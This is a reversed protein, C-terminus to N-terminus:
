FREELWRDICNLTDTRRDARVLAPTAFSTCIVVDDPVDPFWFPLANWVPENDLKNQVETFLKERPIVGSRIRNEALDGIKYLHFYCLNEGVKYVNINHGKNFCDPMVHEIDNTPGNLKRLSASPVASKCRVLGDDEAGGFYCVGHIHKGKIHNPM